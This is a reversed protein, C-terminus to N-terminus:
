GIMIVNGPGIYLLGSTPPTPITPLNGMFINIAAFSADNGSAIINEMYMTNPNTATIGNGYIVVYPQGGDNNGTGGLIVSHDGSVVNSYGNIIASYDGGVVNNHGGLVAAYAATAQNDKGGSIIAFDNRRGWRTEKKLSEAAILASCNIDKIDAM